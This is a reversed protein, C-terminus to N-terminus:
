SKVKRRIKNRRGVIEVADLADFRYSLIERRRLEASTRSIATMTTANHRVNFESVWESLQAGSRFTFRLKYQPEVYFGRGALWWILASAALTGIIGFIEM